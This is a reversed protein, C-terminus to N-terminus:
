YRRLSLSDTSRQAAKKLENGTAFLFVERPQNSIRSLSISCHTRLWTLDIVSLEKRSSQTKDILPTTLRRPVTCLRLWFCAASNAALRALPTLATIFWRCATGRIEGSARAMIFVCTFGDAAIDLAL